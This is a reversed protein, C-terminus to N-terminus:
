IEQLQIRIPDSDQNINLITFQSNKDFLVEDEFKFASTGNLYVGNKSQMEFIISNKAQISSAFDIAVQENTSTSSFTPFKINSGVNFQDIFGSFEKTSKKDDKWMMGRYVKGEVKPAGKIFNSIKEIRKDRQEKKAKPPKGVKIKGTYDRLSMKGTRLYENFSKYDGGTYSEIQDLLDKGDPTKHLEGIHSEMNKKASNISIRKLKKSKPKVSKIDKISSKKDEPKKIEKKKSGKDIAEFTYIKGDSLKVTKESESVKEITLDKGM